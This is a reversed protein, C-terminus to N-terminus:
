NFRVIYAHVEMPYITVMAGQLFGVPRAYQNTDGWSGSLRGIAATRNSALEWRKTFLLTTRTVDIANPFVRSMNVVAIGQACSANSFCSGIHALRIWLTGNNSPSEISDLSVHSPLASANWVSPFLRNVLSTINPVPAEGASFLLLPQRRVSQSFRRWTSNSPTHLSVIFRRRLPMPKGLHVGCCGGQPLDERCWACNTYPTVFETENLAEGVGRGDDVLLRRHIMCELSGEELSACGVTADPVVLWEATEDRILAAAPVPFYNGAIPETLHPSTNRRRPLLELGNSDTYFTQDTNHISSIWRMVLERGQPLLPVEGGGGGAPAPSSSLPLERMSVEVEVRPEDSFVFWRLSLWETINQDFVVAVGPSTISVVVTTTATTHSTNLSSTVDICETGNPRFIYAGSAQRSTQDGTSGVYYCIELTLSREINELKNTVSRLKGTTSDFVLRMTDTEVVGSNDDFLPHPVADHKDIDGGNDSSDTTSPTLLPTASLIFASSLPVTELKVMATWPSCADSQVALCQTPSAIVISNVEISVGEATMATWSWHQHAVPIELIAGRGITSAADRSNWGLVHFPAIASTASCVSENAHLCVRYTGDDDNVTLVNALASTAADMASALTKTYDFSVHQKATGTVADHHQSQALAQQLLAMASTLTSAAAAAAGSHSSQGIRYAATAQHLAALLGSAVRVLRKFTPRSTFYGTWYMHPGDAYPFFDGEKIMLPVNTNIAEDEQRQANRLIDGFRADTYSQPTAYTFNINTWLFSDGEGAGERTLDPRNMIKRIRDMNGFWTEAQMYTFDCGMTWMINDSSSLDWDSGAMAGIREVWSLATNQADSCASATSLTNTLLSTSPPCESDVVTPENLLIDFNMDIPPCYTGHLMMSAFVVAKEGLSPSPMWFFERTQDHQRDSFDQYDIRSFYLAEVDSAQSLILVQGASHGFPDVQWQIRPLADVGFEAVIFQHGITMQELMDQYTTTAEDHSCWGGGAFQLQGNEVLGKVDARRSSSQEFYWKSFFAMEVSIFKRSSNALLADIASTYILQVNAHQISNNWGYYYQAPTKLWGVDDHSHPILHITTAADSSWITAVCLLITAVLSFIYPFLSVSM